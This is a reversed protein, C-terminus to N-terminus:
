EAKQKGLLETIVTAVLCIVMISVGIASGLGYHDYLFAEQYMLTTPLNTLGNPGGGTMAFVLDFVKITGIIDLIFCMILTPKIMPITVSFLRQVANAGDIDAAEYIEPSITTLGALIIVMYYGIGAWVNVFIITNMATSQEVLWNRVLSTLGMNQLLMNLSGNPMFIFMWMLGISTLPFVTPIFYIGKFVRFGRKTSHLCVALLLAIPTHLAVSIVVMRLMNKMSLIFAPDKLMVSFNKLGVFQIATGALGDWKSMSFYVAGILPIIQFVVYIILAPMLFGLVFLKSGTTKLKM